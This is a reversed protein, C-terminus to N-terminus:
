DYPRLFSISKDNDIHSIDVFADTSRKEYDNNLIYIYALKKKCMMM